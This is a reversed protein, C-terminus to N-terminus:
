NVWGGAQALSFRFVRGDKRVPKWDVLGAAKLERRWGAVQSKSVKCREALEADSIPNGGNVEGTTESLLGALVSFLNFCAPFISRAHRLTPLKAREVDEVKFVIERGIRHAPLVGARARRDITAVSVGLEIAAQEKSFYESM